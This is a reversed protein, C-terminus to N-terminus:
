VRRNRNLCNALWPIRSHNSNPPVKVSWWVGVEWQLVARHAESKRPCHTGYSSLCSQAGPSVGSHHQSCCSSERTKIFKWLAKMAKWLKTQEGAQNIQMKISLVFKSDTGRLSTCDSISSNCKAGAPRATSAGATISMAPFIIPIRFVQTLYLLTRCTQCTPSSPFLCSESGGSWWLVLPVFMGM